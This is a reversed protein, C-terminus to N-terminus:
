LIKFDKKFCLWLIQHFVLHQLFCYVQSWAQHLICSVFYLFVFIGSKMSPALSSLLHFTKSPKRWCPTWQILVNEIEKSHCHKAENPEKRVKLLTTFIHLPATNKAHNARRAFTKLNTRPVKWLFCISLTKSHPQSEDPLIFHHKFGVPAGRVFSPSTTSTAESSPCSASTSTWSSTTFRTWWESTWTSSRWPTALTLPVKLPVMSLLLNGQQTRKAKDHFVAPPPLEM